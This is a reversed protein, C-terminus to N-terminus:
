GNEFNRCLLQVRGSSVLPVLQIDQLERLHGTATGVEVTLEFSTRIYEQHVFVFVSLQQTRHSGVPGRIGSKKLHLKLIRNGCEKYLTDDAKRRQAM